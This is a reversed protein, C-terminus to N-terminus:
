VVKSLRGGGVWSVEDTFFFRDESRIWNFASAFNKALSTQAGQSM